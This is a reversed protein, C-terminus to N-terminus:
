GRHRSVIRIVAIAAVIAAVLLVSVLEFHLWYATLFDVSFQTVGFRGDDVPAASPPADQWLGYGLAGVLVAFGLAAPVLLRSYRHVYSRDRV